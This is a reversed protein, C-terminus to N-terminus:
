KRGLEEDMKILWGLAYGRERATLNRLSKYAVEPLPNLSTEYGAVMGADFEDRLREQEVQTSLNDWNSM